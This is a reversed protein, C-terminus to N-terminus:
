GAGDHLGGFRFGCGFWPTETMLTYLLKKKIGKAYELFLQVEEQSPVRMELKCSMDLRILKRKVTYGKSGLFSYLAAM